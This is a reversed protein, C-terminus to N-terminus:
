KIDKGAKLAEVREAGKANLKEGSVARTATASIGDVYVATEPRVFTAGTCAFQGPVTVSMGEYQPAIFNLAEPLAAYIFDSSNAYLLARGDTAANDLDGSMYFKIPKGSMISAINNKSVYEMISVSSGQNVPDGMVSIAAGPLPMTDPMSALDGGTYSMIRAVAANITGLIASSNGSGDANLWGNTAQIVDVDNSNFLGTEMDDGANYGFLMAHNITQEAALMANSASRSDLQGGLHAIQDLEHKTYTYSVTDRFISVTKPTFVTQIRNIASRSSGEGHNTRGVKSAIQFLISDAWPRQTTNVPVLTRYLLPKVGQTFIRQEVDTFLDVVADQSIKKGSMASDRVYRAAFDQFQARRMADTAINTM